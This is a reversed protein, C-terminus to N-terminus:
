FVISERLEGYTRVKKLFLVRLHCKPCAISDHTQTAGHRNFLGGCNAHLGVYYKLQTEDRTHDVLYQLSALPAKDPPYEELSEGKDNLQIPQLPRSREIERVIVRVLEERLEHQRSFGFVVRRLACDLWGTAFFYDHDKQGVVKFPCLINIPFTEDTPSGDDDVFNGTLKGPIVVKPNFGAATVTDFLTQIDSEPLDTVQNWDVQSLVLNVFKEAITQICM